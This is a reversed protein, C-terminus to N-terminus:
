RAVRLPQMPSEEWRIVRNNRFYVRSPGYDWVTDTEMVPTGQVVRVEDKTSGIEFNGDHMQVPQDRGIRLPNDPDQNWSTVKGQSFYIRSKGYYWTEGQTFDPVGQASYVEGITSGVWIWGSERPSGSPAQIPAPARTAIDPRDVTNGPRNDAPTTPGAFRDALYLVPVIIFIAFAVRRRREAKSKSPESVTAGRAGTAARDSSTVRDSVPDPHRTPGQAGVDVAPKRPPLVGYTRRYNRLAQYAITIQKSREEAIKKAATDGSFRDPHWQGILRKYHRHLKGWDTDADVGLTAYFNSYDDM